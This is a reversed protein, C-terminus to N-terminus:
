SEKDILDELLKNILQIAEPLAARVAPSLGEGLEFVVAEVGILIIQDPLNDPVLQQGLALTEAAGWGHGSGSGPGFVELDEEKFQIVTGAPAGSQVADVLVATDLGAIAGLLNLGPSELVEVELQDETYDEAHDKKWRKIIELGVQDDGRLDHGLGILKIRM